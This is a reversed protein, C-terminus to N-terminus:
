IREPKYTKILEMTEQTKLAAIFGVFMKKYWGQEPIRVPEFTGDTKDVRMIIQGAYEEEPFEENRAQRYAATQVMMEPYIGSSTKMDGIYMKGEFKCIFDLTGTYNYKRSYVQQEAVLFEVKHEKVWRLFNKIGNRLDINVPMAPKEGNIYDEIWKHIFTGLLGADVKKQYHAKRGAQIIAQLQLEDYAVGPELADNISGAAMNAAWNILAPKAIINLAKTVNTVKEQFRKLEPDNVHYSHRFSDFILEVKGKYLKTKIIM